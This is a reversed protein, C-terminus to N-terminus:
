QREYLTMFRDTWLEEPERDTLDLGKFRNTVEGMYNYPIQNLDYRFPRTIRGVKKLKLRFKAILLEHNSCCDAGPRKKKKKATYLKEMKPQLSYLGNSKPISWRTIDM